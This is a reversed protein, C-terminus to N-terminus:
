DFLRFQDNSRKLREARDLWAKQAILDVKPNLKADYIFNMTLSEGVWKETYPIGAQEFEKRYFAEMQSDISGVSDYDREGHLKRDFARVKAYGSVHYYLGGTAETKYPIGEQKLYTTFLARQEPTHQINAGHYEEYPAEELYIDLIYAGVVLAAITM